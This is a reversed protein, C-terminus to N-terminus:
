GTEFNPSRPVASARVLFRRVSPIFVFDISEKWQDCLVNNNATFNFNYSNKYYYIYEM